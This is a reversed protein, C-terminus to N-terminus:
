ANVDITEGGESEARVAAERKLYEQFDEVDSRKILALPTEATHFSPLVGREIYRDLRDWDLEKYRDNEFVADYKERIAQKAALREQMEARKPFEDVLRRWDQHM